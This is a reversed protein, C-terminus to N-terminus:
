STSIASPAGTGFLGGDRIKAALFDVGLDRLAEAPSQDDEAASELRVGV